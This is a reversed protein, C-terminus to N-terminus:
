NILAKIKHKIANIAEMDLNEKELEIILKQVEDVLKNQLSEQKETIEKLLVASQQHMKGMETVIRRLNGPYKHLETLQNPM